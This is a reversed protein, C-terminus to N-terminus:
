AENPAVQTGGDAIGICLDAIFDNWRHLADLKAQRHEGMDYHRDQVGGLGHSLLQARDDKSVRLTEALTTEATRRLDGARFPNIDKRDLRIVDSIERVVGSITEPAVVSARSGFLPTKDGLEKTVPNIKKLLAVVEEIEPIMPILHLRPAQRKGKGDRIVLKDRLVDAHTLRLLQQIRQGATAFQLWLVLSAPDLDRACLHALFLRLEEPSLVRNGARNFKAAMSTPPVAAVPNVSLDFEKASDPAMPDVGAGIALHFAASAYSRLKLATRGKPKQVGPAVLRALIKSFQQPTIQAAPLAALEPFPKEVHNCFINQADYASETKGKSKLHLIYAALLASLSKTKAHKAELVKTADQEIATQRAKDREVMPNQGARVLAQLRRAEARAHVLTLGDTSEAGAYRGLSQRATKGSRSWEFLWETVVGTGIQRKRIKLSGAGPRIAGDALVKGPKLAAISATTLPKTTSRRLGSDTSKEGPNMDRNMDRYLKSPM